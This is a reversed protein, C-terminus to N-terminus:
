RSLYRKPLMLNLTETGSHSVTAPLEGAYEGDIQCHVPRTGCARMGVRDTRYSIVGPLSHARKAAVGALYLVYRFTSVGSFLVVEFQRDLLKVDRAIEFDGGYNRVKTILAFSCIHTAGNAEVELEALPRWFLPLSGFWYAAKGLRAKWTASLRHIIDADLGAGTMLLFNQSAGNRFHLSGMSIQRPVCEALGRAARELNRGMGIENALVNATGAPLVGLPIKSGILGEAAENVTGDGGAAVILDAGERICARVMDGAMRPGPTALVTVRAAQRKLAREAAHLRKM